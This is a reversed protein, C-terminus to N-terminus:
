VFRECLRFFFVLSCFRAFLCSLFATLWELYGKNRVEGGISEKEKEDRVTHERRSEGRRRLGGCFRDM